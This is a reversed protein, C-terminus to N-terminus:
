VMNLSLQVAEVPGHSVVPESASKYIGAQTLIYSVNQRTTFCMEAIKCMVRHPKVAGSRIDPACDLYLNIIKEKKERLEREHKTEYKTFVGM